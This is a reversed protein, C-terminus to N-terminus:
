RTGLMTTPLWLALGPFAVVMAWGFLLMLVFPLSGRVIQNFPSHTVARMVFLNMGVPPTLLAVELLIVFQIGFWVLDVGLAQLTPLVIPTVILILAVSELFMGLVLLLLCVAVLFGYKGLGANTVWQTLEAPVKLLTLVTGFTVAAVIIMFLIASLRMAQMASEIIDHWGLARYVLVGILVAQLASVAAAETVTFIGLYIGGFIVPPLSLAWLAKRGTSIMEGLSARKGIRPIDSRTVGVILCYGAFIAAMILGPVVGAMFLAGISADTVLAYLVMPGSPPILIGLTGGGAITGLTLPMPYGAKQMQPVAIAAVTLATTASSGSIAAFVTCCLVTSIALGGPLHGVLSNLFAYLDDVIRTRVMVQAMFAFLPIAVLVYSSLKAVMQDALGGFSGSATAIFALATLGLGAYIPVGTMLVVLLILLLVLTM